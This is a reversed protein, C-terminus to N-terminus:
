ILGTVKEQPQLLLFSSEKRTLASYYPSSKNSLDTHAHQYTAIQSGLADTTVGATGNLQSSLSHTHFSSSMAPTLSGHAFSSEIVSLGPPLFDLGIFCLM